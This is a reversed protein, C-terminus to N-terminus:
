NRCCSVELAFKEFDVNPLGEIGRNEIDREEGVSM